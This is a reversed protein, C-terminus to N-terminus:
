LLTSDLRSERRLSRFVERLEDSPSGPEACKCAHVQGTNGLFWILNIMLALSLVSASALAFPMERHKAIVTRM